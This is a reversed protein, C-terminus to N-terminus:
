EPQRTTLRKITTSKTRDAVEILVADCIFPEATSPTPATKKLPEGMERRLWTQSNATDFGIVSEQAGCMGVDSQFATGRPLIRTDATPVHTHTGVVASVRGDLHHGLATKESTAEAHFDLLIADLREDQFDELVADAINFFNATPRDIFANGLISVLLVKKGLATEFVKAGTGPHDGELNAPRVVPGDALPSFDKDFYHDGVTFADVGASRLEAITDATVGFGHASNEANAVILDPQHEDRWQPLAAAVAERGPKGVVDGFFLLKM